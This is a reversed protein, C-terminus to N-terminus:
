RRAFREIASRYADEHREASRQWTFEAARERGAAGLQARRANDGLLSAVAIGLEDDSVVLGDRGERTIFRAGPNPSAVVPVGHAMAEVYPLGFGEYSSPLCFVSARTFLDALELDTPTKIWRVSESEECFDSVCWLEADPHIPLVDRVFADRLLEGRKRGKWTGVFLVIPSDGRQASTGTDSAAAGPLYGHLRHVPGDGPIMGYARTALLCSLAELPVIAAQSMMRRARTAHRMEYLASGYLTRVTPHRRRLYFWDDGHLHVVDANGFSVRNLRAPAVVLRRLQRTATSRPLM